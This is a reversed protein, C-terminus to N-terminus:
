AEERTVDPKVVVEFTDSSRTGDELTVEVDGVWTRPEMATTTAKALTMVIKSESLKDNDIYPTVFTRSDIHPRLQCKVTVGDVSLDVNVGGKKFVITPFVVDDGRKFSHLAM